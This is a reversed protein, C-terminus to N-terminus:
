RAATAGRPVRGSKRAAKQATASRKGKAPKVAARAPKAASRTQLQAQLANRELTLRAAEEELVRLRRAMSERLALQEVLRAESEAAEREAQAHRTALAHMSRAGAAGAGVAVLLLGPLLLRLLLTGSPASAAEPM